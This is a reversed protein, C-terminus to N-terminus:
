GAKFAAAIGDNPSAIAILQVNHRIAVPKNLFRIPLVSAARKLDASGM